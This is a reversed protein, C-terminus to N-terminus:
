KAPQQTAPAAPAPQQAAPAAPQQAPQQAAPAPRQGQAFSAKVGNAAKILNVIGQEAITGKCKGSIDNLSAIVKEFEAQVDQPISGKTDQSANGQQNNQGQTDQSANGQQYNTGQTDDAENMESKLINAATNTGYTTILSEVMSTIDRVQPGNNALINDIRNM